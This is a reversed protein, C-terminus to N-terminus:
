KSKVRIIFKVIEFWLVSVAAIGFALAFQSITLPALKLFTNLPSYISILVLLITAISTIWMIKDTCLKKISYIVSDYSSSNVQVLFLSSLMMISLGMSRALAPNEFNPGM